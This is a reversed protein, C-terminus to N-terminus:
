HLKKVSRLVDEVKIDKKIAQLVHPSASELAIDAAVCGAKKMLEFMEPLVDARSYCRWKINLNRRIIGECLSILHKQSATLTPDSFTLNRVGTIKIMREIEDLINEVNRFRVRKTSLSCFVCRGPCGRGTMVMFSQSAPFRRMTSIFSYDGKIKSFDNINYHLRDLNLEPLRDPNSIIKGNKRYTIGSIGDVSSKNYLADCLEALTIEGEGRVVFDIEELRELSETALSSFHRGGVVIRCGPLRSKIQRITGYAQFRNYTYGTIGILEAKSAELYDLLHSMKWNLVSCDLVESDLGNKALYGHLYMLSFPYAKRKESAPSCILYIKKTMGIDGLGGNEILLGRRM